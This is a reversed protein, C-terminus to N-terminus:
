EVGARVWSQGRGKGRAGAEAGVGVQNKKILLQVSPLDKGHDTSVALPMRENVWLQLFVTSTVPPRPDFM